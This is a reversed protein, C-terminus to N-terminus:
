NGHLIQKLAARWFLPVLSSSSTSIFKKIFKRWSPIVFRQLDLIDYIIIIITIIFTNKNNNNYM